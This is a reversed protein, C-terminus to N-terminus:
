QMRALLWLLWLVFAGVALAGIAGLVVGWLVAARLLISQNRKITNIQRQLDARVLMLAQSAELATNQSTTAANTAQQQPAQQPQQPALDIIIDGRRLEEIIKDQPVNRRRLDAIACFIQADADDFLRQGLDGRARPSLLEQYQRTFNRATQESVGALKAMERTTLM